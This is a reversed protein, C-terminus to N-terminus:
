VNNCFFNKLFYIFANDCDFDKESCYYVEAVSFIFIKAEDIKSGRRNVNVTKLKNFIKGWFLLVRTM